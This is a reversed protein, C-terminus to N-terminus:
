GAPRAPLPLEASDRYRYSDFFAYEDCSHRAYFDMMDVWDFKNQEVGRQIEQWNVTQRCLPQAMPVHGASTRADYLVLSPALRSLYYASLPEVEMVEVGLLEVQSGKNYLCETRRIKEHPALVIANHAIEGKSLCQRRGLVQTGVRYALYKPTNNEIQLTLHDARFANGDVTAQQKEVSLTITLHRTKVPKGPRLRRKGQIEDFYPIPQKLEDLSPIRVQYRRGDQEVLARYIPESFKLVSNILQEPPPPPKPLPPGEPPDFGGFMLLLGVFVTVGTLGLQVLILPRGEMRKDERENKRQEL